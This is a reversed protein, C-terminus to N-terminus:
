ANCEGDEQMAKEMDKCARDLDIEAKLDYIFQCLKEAVKEAYECGALHRVYQRGCIICTLKRILEWVQWYIINGFAKHMPSEQRKGYLDRTFWKDRVQKLVSQTDEKSLCGKYKQEIRKELEDLIENKEQETM